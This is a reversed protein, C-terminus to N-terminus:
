NSGHSLSSAEVEPIWRRIQQIRTEDSPHTSLFEPPAGKGEKSEAMRQWFAVAAHLDYGAKKMLILGIKDAESEHARSFPLLVGVGMGVGYASDVARITRPDKVGLALLLGIEGIQVLRQTSLREAGHRAIAHGIEHSLVVALGAENQTVPLIGTYVAVKGGPLAFANATDVNQIVNFEWDFDPRAAAEALRKGVRQVLDNIEPSQNLTSQSLIEAYAKEGLEKEEDESILILQSRGTLPVTQCATLLLLAATLLSLPKLRRAQM